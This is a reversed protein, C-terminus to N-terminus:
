ALSSKPAADVRRRLTQDVAFIVIPEKSSRALSWAHEFCTLAPTSGRRFLRVDQRLRRSHKARTQVALLAVLDYRGFDSEHTCTAPRKKRNKAM